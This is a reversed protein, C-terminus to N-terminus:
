GDMRKERSLKPLSEEAVQYMLSALYNLEQYELNSPEVPISDVM